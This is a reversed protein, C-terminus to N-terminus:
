VTAFLGERILLFGRVAALVAGGCELDARLSSCVRGM